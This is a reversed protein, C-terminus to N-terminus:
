CKYFISVCYVFPATPCIAIVESSVLEDIKNMARRWDQTWKDVEAWVIRQFIAIGIGPECLRIKPARAKEVYSDLKDTLRLIRYADGGHKELSTKWPFLLTLSRYYERIGIDPSSHRFCQLRSADMDAYEGIEPQQRASFGRLHVQCTVEPSVYGDRDPHVRADPPGTLRAYSKIFSSIMNMDLFRDLYSSSELFFFFTPPIECAYAM